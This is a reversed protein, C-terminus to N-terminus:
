GIGQKPVTLKSSLFFNKEVTFWAAIFLRRCFHKQENRITEKPYSGPYIKVPDFLIFM